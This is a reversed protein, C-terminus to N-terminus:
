GKGFQWWKAAPKDAFFDKKPKAIFLRIMMPLYERKTATLFKEVDSVSGLKSIRMMHLCDRNYTEFDDRDSDSFGQLFTREEKYFSNRVALTDAKLVQHSDWFEDYAEDFYDWGYYEMTADDFGLDRIRKFVEDVAGSLLTAFTLSKKYAENSNHLERCDKRFRDAVMAMAYSFREYLVEIGHEHFREDFNWLSGAKAKENEYMVSVAAYCRNFCRQLLELKEDRVLLDLFELFV